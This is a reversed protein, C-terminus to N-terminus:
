FYKCVKQKFLERIVLCFVIVNALLLIGVPLLFGIMLPLGQLWCLNSAMYTFTQSSFDEIFNRKRMKLIKFHNLCVKIMASSKM